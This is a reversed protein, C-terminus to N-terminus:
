LDGGYDAMAYFIDPGIAGLKAFRKQIGEPADPDAFPDGLLATLGSQSAAVSSSRSIPPQLPCLPRGRQNIQHRFCRCLAATRVNSVSLGHSGSDM